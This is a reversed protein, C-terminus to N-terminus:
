RLVASPTPVARLALTTAASTSALRTLAVSSTARASMNAATSQTVSTAMAARACPVDTRWGATPTLEALHRRASIRVKEDDNM